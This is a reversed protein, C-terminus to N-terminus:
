NGSLIYYINGYWERVWYTPLLYWRTPASINKAEIGKKGAILEARLQHFGDTVITIDSCLNNKEIIELSFSLNEETNTSKDEMFIRDSAIGKEVLYNRMCEAESILEDDGKGGSVVVNVNDNASLFDLAADLRSKLMRSPKGNKVQCGLLVLTTKDNKPRDKMAKIMFVSIIVAALICLASVFAAVSIAAKGAPTKWLKKMLDAFPRFFVFVLTLVGFVATGSINGINVIGRSFPIAFWIVMCLSILAPFVRMGTNEIFNNM